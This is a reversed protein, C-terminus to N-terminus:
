KGRGTWKINHSDMPDAVGKALLEGEFHLYLAPWVVMEIVPKVMDKQSRTYPRFIDTAFEHGEKEDSFVLPPDSIVMFWCLECCKRAYHILKTPLRETEGLGQKKPLECQSYVQLLSLPVNQQLHHYRVIM